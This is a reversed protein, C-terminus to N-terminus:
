VKWSKGSYKGITKWPNTEFTIVVRVSSEFAFMTNYRRLIRADKRTHLLYITRILLILTKRHLLWETYISTNTNMYKCKVHDNQVSCCLFVSRVNTFMRNQKTMMQLRISKLTCTDFSLCYLKNNTYARCLFHIVRSFSLLVRFDM